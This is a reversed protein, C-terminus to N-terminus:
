ALAAVADAAPARERGIRARLVYGKVAPPPSLASFFSPAM